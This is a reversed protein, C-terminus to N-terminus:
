GDLTNPSSLITKFNKFRLCIKEKSYSLTCPHRYSSINYIGDATYNIFVKQSMTINYYVPCIGCGLFM